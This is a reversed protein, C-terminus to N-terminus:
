VSDEDPDNLVYAERDSVVSMPFGKNIQVWRSNLKKIRKIQERDLGFYNDLLYKISRGGLGSPFIVVSKCENLIRKTQHGDTALHSTYIVECNFHRGTELVSNLIEQVKLRLRKDTLCDTDDFIVCANQFDKASIDETLLKDMKIRHLGKIKDISSDDSISSILYVERKPYIKKYEEVYMRTWYSKGSGSAGTIYTISREIDKDPAPQFHLKPKDKLKVDRFAGGMVESPNSTLYLKRWKKRDKIDDDKLFALFRGKDEFNM